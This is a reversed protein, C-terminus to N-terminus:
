IFGIMLEVINTDKLEMDILDVELTQRVEVTDAYDVDEEGEDAKWCGRKVEMQKMKMVNEELEREKMQEVGDGQKRNVEM